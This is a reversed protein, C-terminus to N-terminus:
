WTRAKEIEKLCDYCYIENDIIKAGRFDIDSQDLTDGCKNSHCTFWWGDKFLVDKPVEGKEAYQDYEKVRHAEVEMFDRDLESAGIEKAQCIIEAFVIRSYEEYGLETVQWAKM